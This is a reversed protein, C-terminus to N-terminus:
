PSPKKKKVGDHEQGKKKVLPGNCFNRKMQLNISCYADLVLVFLSGFLTVSFIYHYAAGYRSSFIIQNQKCTHCHVFYKEHFQNAYLLDTYTCGIIVVATQLRIELGAIFLAPPEIKQWGMNVNCQHELFASSYSDQM